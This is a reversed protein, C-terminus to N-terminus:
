GPTPQHCRHWYASFDTRGLVFLLPLIRPARISSSLPALAHCWVDGVGGSSFINARPRLRFHRLNLFQLRCFLCCRWLGRTTDWFGQRLRKGPSSLLKPLRRVGRNRRDPEPSDPLNSRGVRSIFDVRRGRVFDSPPAIEDSQSTKRSPSM